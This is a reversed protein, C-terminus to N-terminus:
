IPFTRLVNMWSSQLHHLCGGRAFVFCFVFELFSINISVIAENRDDGNKIQGNDDRCDRVCDVRGGGRRDGM